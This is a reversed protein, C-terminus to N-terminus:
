VFLLKASNFKEKYYNLEKQLDHIKGELRKREIPSLPSISEGMSELREIEYLSYRPTPLNPVRKIIGSSEYNEIVKTSSFGWRDALDQRSLLIQKMM